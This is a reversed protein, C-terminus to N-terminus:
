RIFRYSLNLTLMNSIQGPEVPTSKMEADAAMLRPAPMYPQPGSSRGESISVLEVARYGTLRAYDEAKAKAAAIAKGRAAVLKADADKVNFSPGNINTGGAAVLADLIQGLDDIKSTTVQVMNSVQYGLFRPPQGDSRNNYDYQPSLNIGSTQIDEDKIGRAKAAKVLRDMGQANQRMAEVATPATVQVGAGISAQDPKSRVEETVSFSFVPGQASQIMASSGQQQAMAPMALNMAAGAILAAMVSKKM